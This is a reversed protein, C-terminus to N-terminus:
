AFVCAFTLGTGPRNCCPTRATDAWSSLQPQQNLYVCLLGSSHVCVVACRPLRGGRVRTVARALPTCQCCLCCEPPPPTARVCLKLNFVRLLLLQLILCVADAVGPM